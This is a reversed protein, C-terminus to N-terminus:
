PLPRQRIRNRGIVTFKGSIVMEALRLLDLLREAPEKPTSPEFRFYIVGAPAALMHRYVLEGYDRDFTLVIRGEETAQRLVTRDNIGPSDETIARVDYSAERLLYVSKLPFNENALFKM